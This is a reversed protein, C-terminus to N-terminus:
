DVGQSRSKKVPPSLGLKRFEAEGQQVRAAELSDVLTLLQRQWRVLKVRAQRCRRYAHTMSRLSELQEAPPSINRPRGQGRYSLVTSEHLEGRSCRCNPKGCKRRLVYLSGPLLPERALCDELLQPLQEQAKLLQSRLSSLQQNM